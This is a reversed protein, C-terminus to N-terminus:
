SPPRYEVLEVIDDGHPAAGSGWTQHELKVIRKVDPSYWVTVNFKLTYSRVGVMAGRERNGEAVYRLARFTGAPVTVDEWEGQLTTVAWDARLHGDVMPYGGPAIGDPLTKERYAAALYPAFELLYADGGIPYDYFRVERTPVTRRSVEAGGGKRFVTEEVFEADVREARVTVDTARQGFARETVRYVWVTGPAPFGPPVSAAAAVSAAPRSRKELAAKARGPVDRIWDAPLAFNLNQADVGYFTTIGVLRGDADFLGGGSSGGSIAATTQIVHSGDKWEGRLGSILGDSLTMELGKPAGIAFVRQGVKADALPALEVAPASFDAVSLLCLDRPPDAHELKAEYMVNKRRVLVSNAKALVHCNTVLQGRAIVVASGQSLLRGSADSTWVAWISPSVKDFVQTPELARAPPMAACALAAAAISLLPVRRKM